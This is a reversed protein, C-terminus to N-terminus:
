IHEKSYKIAKNEFSDHNKNEREILELVRKKENETLENAGKGISKASVNHIANKIEDSSIDEEIFKIIKKTASYPDNVFEEYKLSFLRNPDLSKFDQESKKVCRFWQVACIETLSYKKLYHQMDEFIPGWFAVRKEKSFIRHIRSLIFRIAYYPMDLIPVFRAKKMLYNIDLPAKWRHKASGIVDFMDRKIYIYKANPFIENIFQVRLSNATTKEVVVRSNKKQQLKYFQDRIYKKVYDNAQESTFEDSQFRINGHRWIYNIEDCPWTDIGEINCLVDRLMNTGSRPAGIIIVTQFNKKM